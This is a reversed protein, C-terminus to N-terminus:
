DVGWAVILGGRQLAPREFLVDLLAAPGNACPAYTFYTLAFAAFLPLDTLGFTSLPGLVGVDAKKLTSSPAKM